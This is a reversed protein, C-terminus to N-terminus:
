AEGCLGNRAPICSMSDGQEQQSKECDLNSMAASSQIVISPFCSGCKEMSCFEVAKCGVNVFSHKLSSALESGAASFFGIRVGNQFSNSKSKTAKTIIIM